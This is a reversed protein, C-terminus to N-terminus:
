WGRSGIYSSYPVFRVPAKDRDEDSAAQWAEDYMQKLMPIRDISEPTKLAVHYALGAILAPVFRFPVDMTLTGSNGADDLRRLRWYVLTYSDNNATPWIKINPVPAQRDVYIQIPRGTTLKNPLTAYTPLAIRTIQLDVQTATNGPNQRIVHEILDVTDAPLDYQVTGQTLPIVGQEVTWLNIGRNAWEAMMINLSRRATKLQYGTRIEVGAREYAEEIIEAVDPNWVATGSTTM